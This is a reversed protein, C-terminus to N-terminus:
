SSSMVLLKERKIAINILQPLVAYCEM